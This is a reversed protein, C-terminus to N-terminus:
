EEVLNANFLYLAFDQNPNTEGGDLWPVAKAVVTTAKVRVVFAGTLEGAPVRVVEVTNHRDEPRSPLILGATNRSYWSGTAFHNGWYQRGGGPVVSIKFVRLDLDNVRLDVAPVESPADTFVMVALVDRRPDVVRLQASWWQGSASFRRGDSGHDQDLAVKVAEASTM